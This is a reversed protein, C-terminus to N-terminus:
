YLLLMNTFWNHLFGSHILTIAVKIIGDFSEIGRTRFLRVFSKMQSWMMEIPNFEPSYVRLYVVSTGISEILEIAEPHHHSNLTDMVVVEGAKLKPVLENKIFGEFDDGKM